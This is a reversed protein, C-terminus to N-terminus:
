ILRRYSAICVEKDKEAQAEKEREEDSKDQLSVINAKKAKTNADEFVSDYFEKMMANSVSLQTYM